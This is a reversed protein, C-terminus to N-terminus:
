TDTRPTKRAHDLARTITAYAQDPTAWGLFVAQTAGESTMVLERARAKHDTLTPYRAILCRGVHEVVASRAEALTRAIWPDGVSAAVYSFYVATGARSDAAPTFSHTLLTWLTAPDDPVGLADPYAQQAADLLAHVSARVLETKTPFYYQVRGASVGSATAVSRFSVAAIGGSAIVQWVGILIATRKDADV